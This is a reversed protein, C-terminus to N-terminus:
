VADAKVALVVAAAGLRAFIGDNVVLLCVSPCIDVVDAPAYSTFFFLGRVGHLSVFSRLVDVSSMLLSM